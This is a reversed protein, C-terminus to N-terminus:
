DFPVVEAPDIAKGNQRVAFYLLSEGRADQPPPISGLVDGAEVWDGARVEPYLLNGYVTVIKGAHQILVTAKGDEDTEVQLVRGSYVAKVRSDGPAAIRVGSGDQEYSQVIRGQVPLVAESRKWGGFVEHAENHERFMPLFSPSGGFHRAYWAQVAQFDMDQTVARATWDRAEKSYPLDSHFWIWAASFCAAALALRLLFGSVFRSWGGGSEFHYLLADDDRSSDHATGGGWGARFSGELNRILKQRAKWWKEPDPERLRLSAGWMKRKRAPAPEDPMDATAEMRAPRIHLPDKAASDEWAAHPGQAGVDWAQRGGAGGHDKASINGPADHGWAPRAERAGANEAPRGQAGPTGDIGGSLLAEIKRRRRRRVNSRIDM